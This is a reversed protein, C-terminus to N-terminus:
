SKTSRLVQVLASALSDRSFSNEALARANNGNRTLRDSDRLLDDLDEAARALDYPDLHIGAQHTEILDKQWGGYNIAVPRGAALADFFKNASNAEMEPIPLFVSFLVDSAALVEPVDKKAIPPLMYFNKDLVGINKAHERLVHKEAGDGVVVIAASSGIKSLRYALDALYRTGNLRGLTGCYIAVQRGELQLHRARWPKVGVQPYFTDLDAANPIVTVKERPTGARLVGDRMGPSLAVIHTSARYAMRELLRAVWKLLPNNLVGLAIPMEPWLDRVEFVLPVRRFLRAVLAPIIITLPTSTAFIIDGNLRRAHVGSVLAFKAFAAIRARMSMENSYPVHVSHVTYGDRVTRAWRNKEHSDQAATVIHVDYGAKALRKAFEHSRTGGSQDPSRYHQHLYVLKTRGKKPEASNLEIM